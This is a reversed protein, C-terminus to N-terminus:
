KTYKAKVDDIKGNFKFPALVLATADGATKAM